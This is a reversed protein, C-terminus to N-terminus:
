PARMFGRLHDLEIDAIQHGAHGLRHAHELAKATQWELGSFLLGHTKGDISAVQREIVLALLRDGLRPPELNPNRGIGHTANRGFEGQFLRTTFLESWLTSRIVAGRTENAGAKSMPFH